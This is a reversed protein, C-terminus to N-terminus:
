VEPMERVRLDDPWESPDALRSPDLGGDTIPSWEDDYPTSNTM